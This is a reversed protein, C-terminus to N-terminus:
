LRGAGRASDEGRGGRDPGSRSGPWKATRTTSSATM